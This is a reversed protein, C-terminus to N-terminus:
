LVTLALHNVFPKAAVPTPITSQPLCSIFHGSATRFPSCYTYAEIRLRQIKCGPKVTIHVHLDKSEGMYEM